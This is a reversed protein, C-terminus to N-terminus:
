ITISNEEESTSQQNFGYALIQWSQSNGLSSFVPQVKFFPTRQFTLYVAFNPSTQSVNQVLDSGIPNKGLTTKGLSANEMPNVTIATNTGLIKKTLTTIKNTDIFNLTCTLTTSQSLYGEVYEKIFSKSKHRSGFTIQPFVAMASIPHGNDSSGTFLKYTDSTLASHGYINGDGTDMFGSLPITQPAEWYFNKKGEDQATMNYARIIGKSPISIFLFENIFKGSGSTFTYTAMDNVISSSLNVMQPTGLIDDVRGLTRVVPENSVFAIDNPMKWMLAQSFVGQNLGTKLPKPIWNFTTLDASKQFTIQYWQGKGCSVYPVDEQVIMGVPAPPLNLPLGGAGNTGNFTTFSFQQSVYVAANTFCGVFLQSNAVCLLDNTWNNFTSSTPLPLGTSGGVNQTAEPAQIILDGASLGATTPDPSVGLFSQSNCNSASSLYSFTQGDIIIRHINTDNYFGLQGITKTGQITISQQSLSIINVTCNTGSGGSTATGSGVTYGTGPTNLTLATAFPTYPSVGVVGNSVSSITIEANVGTGGSIWGSGNTYNQGGQTISVSTIGGSGDVGTVTLIGGSGNAFGVALSDSATYSRGLRTISVGTIVGNVISNVTATAGTGTGGITLIDGVIYGSGGATPLTGISMIESGSNLTSSVKATAGTWDYIQQGGNVMLLENILQTNNWWSTFNFSVSSLNQLIKYWKTSGNTEVNRVELYGSGVTTMGGARLNRVGSPSTTWDYSSVIGINLGSSAGDLTYGARSYVRGFVNTLVDHSGVVLTNPALTSIDERNRYGSMTGHKEDKVSIIDFEAAKMRGLMRLGRVSREATRLANPSQQTTSTKAM